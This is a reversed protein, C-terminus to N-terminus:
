KKCAGLYKGSMTVTGKQTGAGPITMTMNASGSFKTKTYDVKGTSEIRAATSGQMKCELKWTVTTATVIQDGKCDGQLTAFWSGDIDKATLCHQAKTPMKGGGMDIESTMEWLGTKMDIRDASASAPVFAALLLLKKM